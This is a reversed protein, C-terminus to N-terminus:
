TTSRSSWRGPALNFVTESDLRDTGQYYSRLLRRQSSMGIGHFLGYRRPPLVEQDPDALRARLEKAAKDDLPTDLCTRWAEVLKASMRRRDDLGALSFPPHPIEM